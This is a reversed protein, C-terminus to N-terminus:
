ANARPSKFDISDIIDMIKKRDEEFIAKNDAWATIDYRIPGDVLAMVKIYMPEDDRAEPYHFERSIASLGDILFQEHSVVEVGAVRGWYNAWLYAEAEESTQVGETIHTKVFAISTYGFQKDTLVLFCGYEYDQCFTIESSPWPHM